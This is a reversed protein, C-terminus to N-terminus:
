KEKKSMKNTKNFYILVIIMIIEIIIYIVQLFIAFKCYYKIDSEQICFVSKREFILYREGWSDNYKLYIESSDDKEKSDIYEFFGMLHEINKGNKEKVYTYTNDYFRITVKEENSIEASYSGNYISKNLLMINLIIIILIMLAIFINIYLKKRTM